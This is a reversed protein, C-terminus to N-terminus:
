VLEYTAPSNGPGVMVTVAVRDGGIREVMYKQPLISVFVSLPKASATEAALILFILAPLLCYKM